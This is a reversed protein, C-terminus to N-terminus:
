EEDEEDGEDDEDEDVREYRPKHGAQCRGCPPLRDTDEDLTIQWDECNTCRYTGAGPTEGVGYTREAENEEADQQREM